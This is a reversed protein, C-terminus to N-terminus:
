RLRGVAELIQSRCFIRLPDEMLLQLFQYEMNTLLINDGAVTFQHQALDMKLVGWTLINARPARRSQGRQIQQSIRSTLIRIDVPKSVYDDAGARTCMNEDVVEDRRTIM